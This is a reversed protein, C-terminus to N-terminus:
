SLNMGPRGKSEVTILRDQLAQIDEKQQDLQQQVKEKESTM